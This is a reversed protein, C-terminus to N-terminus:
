LGLAEREAKNLKGLAQKILKDKAIANAEEAERKRDAEQHKDWWDALKRADKNRGDYIIKNKADENLNFLISCLADTRKDLSSVDGYDYKSAQLLSGSCKKGMAKSVYILLQAVLKAEKQRETPDAYDCRCPM